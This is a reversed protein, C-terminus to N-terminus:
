QKRQNMLSYAITSMEETLPERGTWIKFAAAGQHILMGLGPVVQCGIGKAEDLLRTILPTYVIDAIIQNPNIWKPDLPLIDEKPHMGLSTCNIVVDSQDMFAQNHEPSPAAEACNRIKNNIEGALENAKAETRNNLFIKGAGKFALTMAIARAAGGCGILYFTKRNVDL